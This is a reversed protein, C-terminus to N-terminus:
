PASAPSTPSRSATASINNDNYLLAGPTVHFGGIVLLDLKAEVSKLQLTGKYTAGDKSLSDNYNLFNGGVRLNVRNALATGVQVGLGLSGAPVVETGGDGPALRM